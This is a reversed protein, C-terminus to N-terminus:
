VYAGGLFLRSLGSLASRLPVAPIYTDRLNNDVHIAHKFPRKPTSNHAANHEVHDNRTKYHINLLTFFVYRVLDFFRVGFTHFVSTFHATTQANCPLSVGIVSRHLNHSYRLQVGRYKDANM